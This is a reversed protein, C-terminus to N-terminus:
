SLNEQYNGLLEVFEARQPETLQEYEVEIDPANWLVEETTDNWYESAVYAYVERTILAQWDEELVEPEEVLEAEVVDEDVSEEEPYLELVVGQDILRAMEGVVVEENTLDERVVLPPNETPMSAMTTPATVTENLALYAAFMVIAALGVMPALLRWPNWAPRARGAERAHAMVRTAFAPHVEPDPMARLLAGLRAYEERRMDLSADDRLLGKIFDDEQEGDLHASLAELKKEDRNM